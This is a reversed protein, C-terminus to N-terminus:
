SKYREPKQEPNPAPVKKLIEAWIRLFRRVAEDKRLFDPAYVAVDHAKKDRTIKLVLTPCDTVNYDYREKLSFFGAEKITVLLDKLDDLTLHSENATVGGIERVVKGDGAITYRWPKWSSSGPYYQAVIKLDTPIRQQDRSECAAVLACLGLVPLQVSGVASRHCLM